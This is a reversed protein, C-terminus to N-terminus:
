FVRSIPNCINQRPVTLILIRPPASYSTPSAHYASGLHYTTTPPSPLPSAHRHLCVCTSFPGAPFPSPGTTRRLYLCIEPNPTSSIKSSLRPLAPSPPFCSPTEFGRDRITPTKVAFTCTSELSTSAPPPPVCPPQSSSAFSHVAAPPSPSLDLAPCPPMQM